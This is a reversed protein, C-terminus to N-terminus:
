RIKVGNLRYFARREKQEQAMKPRLVEMNRAYWERRAKNRSLRRRELREDDSLFRDRKGTQKNKGRCWESVAYYGYPKGLSRKSDGVIYGEEKLIEALRVKMTSTPIAVSAHGAILANRIRTLFDAIPDTMTM